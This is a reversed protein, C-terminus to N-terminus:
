RNRGWVLSEVIVGKSLCTWYDGVALAVPLTSDLEEAQSKSGEM